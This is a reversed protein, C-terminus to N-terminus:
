FSVSGNLLIGSARTCRFRTFSLGSLKEKPEPNIESVDSVISTHLFKKRWGGQPSCFTRMKGLKSLTMNIVRKALCSEGLAPRSESIDRLSSRPVSPLRAAPENKTPQELEPVDDV